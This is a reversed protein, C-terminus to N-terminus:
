FKVGDENNHRFNTLAATMQKKKTNMWWFEHFSRAYPNKKTWIATLLKIFNQGQYKLSFYILKNLRFRNSREENHDNMRKGIVHHSNAFLVNMWHM